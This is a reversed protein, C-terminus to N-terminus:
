SKLIMVSVGEAETTINTSVRNNLGAAFEVMGKQLDNLVQLHEPIQKQKRV